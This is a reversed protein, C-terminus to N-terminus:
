FNCLSSETRSEALDTVPRNKSFKRLTTPLLPGKLKQPTHGDKPTSHRTLPWFLPLQVSRTWFRHEQTIEVGDLPWFQCFIANKERKEEYVNM